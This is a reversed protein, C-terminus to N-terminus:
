RAAENKNLVTVDHDGMEVSIKLLDIHVAAGVPFIGTKRRAFLPESFLMKNAYVRMTEVRETMSKGDRMDTWALNNLMEGAVKIRESLIVDEFRVGSARAARTDVSVSGDEHRVGFASEEHARLLAEDEGIVVLHDIPVGDSDIVPRNGKVRAMLGALALEVVAGVMSTGPELVSDGLWTLEDPRLASQKGSAFMRAIEEAMIKSRGGVYLKQVKRKDNTDDSM